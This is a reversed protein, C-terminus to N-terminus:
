QGLVLLKTALMLFLMLNYGLVAKGSMWVVPAAVSSFPMPESYTFSNVSPHFIPANWYADYFSAVRDCNWWVTWTGLLPVTAASEQGLPLSRDVEAILPWTSLIALFTYLSLTSASLTLQAPIQRASDELRGADPGSHDDVLQPPDAAVM